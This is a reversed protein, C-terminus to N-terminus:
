GAMKPVNPVPKIPASLRRRDYRVVSRRYVPWNVEVVARRAGSGTGTCPEGALIRKRSFRKGPRDSFAEAMARAFKRENVLAGSAFISSSDGAIMIMTKPEISSVRLTLGGSKRRGNILKPAIAMIRSVVM